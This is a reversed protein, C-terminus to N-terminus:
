FVLCGQGDPDAVNEDTGAQYMERGKETWRAFGSADHKVWGDEIAFILAWPADESAITPGTNVPVRGACPSPEMLRRICGVRDGPPQSAFLDLVDRAYKTGGTAGKRPKYNLHLAVARYVCRSSTFRRTENLADICGHEVMDIAHWWLGMEAGVTSDDPEIAIGLTEEVHRVFPHEALLPHLLSVKVGKGGDCSDTAIPFRFLRSPMDWPQGPQFDNSMQIACNINLMCENAAFGAAIIRQALLASAPSDSNQVSPM